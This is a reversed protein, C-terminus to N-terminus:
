MVHIFSGGHVHLRLDLYGTPTCRALIRFVFVGCGCGAGDVEVRVIGCFWFHMTRSTPDCAFGDCRMTHTHTRTHTHTHTDCPKCASSLLIDNMIMSDDMVAQPIGNPCWECFSNLESGLCPLIVQHVPEPATQSLVRTGNDISEPMAIYICFSECLFCFLLRPM